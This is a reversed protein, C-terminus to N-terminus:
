PKTTNYFKTEEVTFKYLDFAHWGPDWGSQMRPSFILNHAATGLNGMNVWTNPRPIKRGFDLIDSDMNNLRSSDLYRYHITITDTKRHALTDAGKAGGGGGGGFRSLPSQQALLGSGSLLLIMLVGAAIIRHGKLVSFIGSLNSMLHGDTTIFSNINEGDCDRGAILMM